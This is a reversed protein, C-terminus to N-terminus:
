QVMESRQGPANSQNELMRKFDDAVEKPTRGGLGSHPRESNYQRRWADVVLRAEEISSFWHQNLCEDRFRGNFSEIHGHQTPRGPEIFLLRVGHRSAWGALARSTFEPGNDLLLVKPLRGQHLRLGELVAVVREGSISHATEGGPSERTCHDLITLSKFWRSSLLQDHIFDMSWVEDPRDPVPTAERLHRMKKKRHKLRLSLKEERYLRYTRKHNVRRGERRILDHIMPHGYRPYRAALERIRLRLAEDESREPRPEYNWSSRELGIVRCARRASWGHAGM